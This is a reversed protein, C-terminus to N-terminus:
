TTTQGSLKQELFPCSVHLNSLKINKLEVGKSTLIHLAKYNKRVVPLIGAKENLLILCFISVGAICV